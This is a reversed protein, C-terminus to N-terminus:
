EKDLRRVDPLGAFRTYPDLGKQTTTPFRLIELDMFKIQFAPKISYLEISGPPDPIRLWYDFKLRYRCCMGIASIQVQYLLKDIM